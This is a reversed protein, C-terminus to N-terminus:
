TVGSRPLILRIFARKKFAANISSGNLGNKTGTPASAQGIGTHESAKEGRKKGGQVKMKKGLALRYGGAERPFCCDSPM